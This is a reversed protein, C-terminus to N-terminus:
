TRVFLASRSQAVGATSLVKALQRQEQRRAQHLKTLVKESRIIRGIQRASLLNGDRFVAYFAAGRLSAERDIALELDRGLADALIELVGASRTMGGSVIIRDTDGVSQEVLDFVDALRYLAGTTLARFIELPTTTLNHNSIAAPFEPWDPARETLMFPLAVLSDTAAAKRELRASPSLRLHRQCWCRLNGANSIAGGLVFTQNGAVFRFLGNPIPLARHTMVRVAASTGLNIAAINESTANSGINGAAGDGIATLVRADDGLSHRIPPLQSVRIRSAECMGSNWSRSTLDFLGTASAMSESTALEGFLEKWIWDSPSVWFRVRSFLVRNMRRLWRLKAPWFCFRLMCGTRQLIETESFEERLKAADARCRSDAWSYIPTIPRLKVDLGLLGHWFACGAVVDFRRSKFTTLAARAAARLIRPDLGASGDRAYRISYPRAFERGTRRGRADFMAARTSSSGIDFALVAM